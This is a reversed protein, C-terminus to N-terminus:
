FYTKLFNKIVKKGKTEIKEGIEGIKKNLFIKIERASVEAAKNAITLLIEKMLEDSTVGNVGGINEIHIDPLTVSLTKGNLIKATLALNPSIIEINKIKFKKTKKRSEKLSAENNGSNKSSTKKINEIIRSFNSTLLDQEYIFEPANIYIREIYVSNSFISKLNINFLIKKIKIAFDTDFGNPNKLIFNKIESKGSGISIDLSKISVPVKATDFIADEIKKKIFNDMSFIIFIIGVTLVVIIGLMIFLTKQM